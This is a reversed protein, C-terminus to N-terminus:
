KLRKVSSNKNDVYIDTGILHVPLIRQVITNIIINYCLNWYLIDLKCVQSTLVSEWLCTSYTDIRTPYVNSNIIVEM